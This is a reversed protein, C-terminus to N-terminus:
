CTVAAGFTTLWSLGSAPEAVGNLGLAAVSPNEPSLRAAIKANRDMAPTSATAGAASSALVGRRSMGAAVMRM